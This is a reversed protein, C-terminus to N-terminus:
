SSLFSRLFKEKDKELVMRLSKLTGSIRLLVMPPQVLVITSLMTQLKELKCSLVIIEKNDIDVFRINARATAIQGFLESSRKSILEVVKHHDYGGGNWV